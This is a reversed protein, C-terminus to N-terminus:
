PQNRGYKMIDAMAFKIFAVIEEESLGIPKLFERTQELITEEDLDTGGYDKIGQLMLDYLIEGVREKTMPAKPTKASENENQDRRGGDAINGM